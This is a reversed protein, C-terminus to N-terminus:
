ISFFICNILKLLCNIELWGIQKLFHIHPKLVKNYKGVIKKENLLKKITVNNSKKPFTVVPATFCTERVVKLNFTM